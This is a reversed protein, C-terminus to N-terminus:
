TDFGRGATLREHLTTPRIDILNHEIYDLFAARNAGGSVGRWGASLDAFAPWLGHQEEGDVRVAFRGGGEDFPIIKM